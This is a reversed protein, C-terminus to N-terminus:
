AAAEAELASLRRHVQELRGGLQVVQDWQGAHAAIRVDGLLAVAQNGADVVRARLGAMPQSPPDYERFAALAAGADAEAERFAVAAAPYTVDGEDVGGIWLETTRVQSYLAHATSSADARYADEGRPPHIGYWVSWVVSGFVAALAARRLTSLREM